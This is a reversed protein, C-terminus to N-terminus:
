PYFYLLTKKGTKLQFTKNNCEYVATETYPNTIIVEIRFDRPIHWRLENGHTIEKVFYEAENKKAPIDSKKRYRTDRPDQFFTHSSTNREEHPITNPIHHKQYEKLAAEYDNYGRGIDAYSKVPILAIHMQVTGEVVKIPFHSQPHAASVCSSFSCLAAISLFYISCKIRQTYM